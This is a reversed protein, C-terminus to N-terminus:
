SSFLAQHLDELVVSTVARFETLNGDDFIVAQAQETNWSYVWRIAQASFDHDKLAILLAHHSITDFAKQFDFPIVVTVLGNEIGKRM